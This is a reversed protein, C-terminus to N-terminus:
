LVAGTRELSLLGSIAGEDRGNREWAERAPGGEAVVQADIWRIVALRTEPGALCASRAVEPLIEEVEHRDIVWGTGENLEVAKRLDAYLAAEASRKPLATACGVALLPLLVVALRVRRPY